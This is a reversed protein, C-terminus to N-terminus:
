YFKTLKGTRLLLYVECCSWLKTVFRTKRYLNICYDARDFWTELLPPTFFFPWMCTLNVFKRKKPGVMFSNVSVPSGDNHDKMSFGICNPKRQDLGRRPLRIIERLKQVASSLPGNIKFSFVQYKEWFILTFSIIEHEHLMLWRWPFEHSKNKENEHRM